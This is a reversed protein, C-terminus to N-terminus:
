NRLQIRIRRQQSGGKISLNTTGKVEYGAQELLALFADFSQPKQSLAEDIALCIRDRHSLRSTDGQWKNYRKGYGKPNEIISYGNEICITDNLRRIAQSSGWFNRLKKDHTLNVSNIIIHNHIHHKDIHTAVVFANRGKTFRKALECGLRNAEEPTIEGPAFSQRLHYAIVDDRGRVRGTKQQYLKKAFLFEMDASRSDCQYSSVLQFGDTKSPNEVYEIIDSIATGASRGEGVHLPILRTTAM